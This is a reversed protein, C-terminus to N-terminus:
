VCIYVYVHIYKQKYTPICTHMYLYLIGDMRLPLALHALRLLLRRSPGVSTTYISYISLHFVCVCVCVCGFTLPLTHVLPLCWALLHWMSAARRPVWVVVPSGCLPSGCLPSGCLPSGCLPGVCPVRVPSGCLPSPGVSSGGGSPLAVCPVWMSCVCLWIPWDFFSGGDGGPLSSWLPISAISVYISICVWVCVCVSVCECICIPIWAYLYTHLYAHVCTFIPNIKFFSGGDGGLLASLMPTFAISLHMYFVCVCLCLCVCGWMFMYINIYTDLYTPICTYM